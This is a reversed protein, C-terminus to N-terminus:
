SIAIMTQWGHGVQRATGWWGNAQNKYAFMAGDERIGVLDLRGDGDVDGPITAQVFSDWGHGIKGAGYVGGDAAGAYAYMSGDAAIAVL